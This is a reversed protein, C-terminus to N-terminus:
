SSDYAPFEGSDLVWSGVPVTDGFAYDHRSRYRPGDDGPAPGPDSLVALTKDRPDIILYLPIGM